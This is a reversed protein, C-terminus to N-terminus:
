LFYLRLDCFNKHHVIYSRIFIFSTLLNHLVCSPLKHTHSIKLLFEGLFSEFKSLQAFHGANMNLGGAEYDRHLGDTGSILCREIYERSLTPCSYKIM